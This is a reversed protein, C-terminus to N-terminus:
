APVWAQRERFSSPISTIRTLELGAVMIVSLFIASLTYISGSVARTSSCIISFSFGSLIRGVSPPCAPKFRPISSSSDPKRFAWLTFSSPVVAAVILFASSLCSNLSVMSFIPSGHAAELTTSVISSPTANVLVM